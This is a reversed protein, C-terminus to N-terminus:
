ATDTVITCKDIVFATLKFIATKSKLNREISKGTEETQKAKTCSVLKLFIAKQIQIFRIQRANWVNSFLSLM